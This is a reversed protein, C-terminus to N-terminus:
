DRRAPAAQDDDIVNDALAHHDIGVAGVGSDMPDAREAFQERGLRADAGRRDLSHTAFSIDAERESENNCVHLPSVFHHNMRRDRGDLDVGPRPPQSPRPDRV